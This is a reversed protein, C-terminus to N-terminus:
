RWVKEIVSQISPDAKVMAARVAARFEKIATNRKELAAKVAPDEAAKREAARLKLQEDTSLKNVQENRERVEKRIDSSDLEQARVSPMQAITLVAFLLIWPKKTM